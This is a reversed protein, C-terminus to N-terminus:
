HQAGISSSLGLLRNDTVHNEVDLQRLGGRGGANLHAPDPHQGVIRGAQVDVVSWDDAAQELPGDDVLDFPLRLRHQARAIDELLLLTRADGAEVSAGLADRKEGIEQESGALLRLDFKGALLRRENATQSSDIWDYGSVLHQVREASNGLGHKDAPTAAALRDPRKGPDAIGAL